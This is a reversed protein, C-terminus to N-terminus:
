GLYLPFLTGYVPHPVLEHGAQDRRLEAYHLFLDTYCFWIAVASAIALAASRRAIERWGNDRCIIALRLLNFGNVVLLGSASANRIWFEGQHADTASFAFQLSIVWASICFCVAFFSQNICSKPNARFVAFGLGLQILLALWGSFTAANM